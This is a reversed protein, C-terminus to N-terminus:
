SYHKRVGHWNKLHFYIAMLLYHIDSHPSYLAALQELEKKLQSLNGTPVEPFTIKRLYGQLKVQDPVTYVPLPKSKKSSIHQIIPILIREKGDM